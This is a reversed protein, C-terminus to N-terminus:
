AWKTKIEDMLKVVHKTFQLTDTLQDSDLQNAKAEVYGAEYNFVGFRRGARLVESDGTNPYWTANDARTFDDILIYGKDGTITVQKKMKGRFSLSIVAIEGLSNNLLMGSQEDVGTIENKKVTTAVLEPKESLLYTAAALAYIGIDYLAGGGKAPDFFRNTESFEKCSGFQISAMSIKGLEGNDIMKRIEHFLPMYYLTAGEALVCHNEKALNEVEALEAQSTTIVKECLVHKKNTLAKKMMEYHLSNPVAIYVADLEAKDFMEDIDTFFLPISYTTAYVEAENGIPNFAAAIDFKERDIKKIFDTAAGGTGIIGWKM